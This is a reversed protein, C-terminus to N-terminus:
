GQLVRRAVGTMGEAGFPNVIRVGALRTGDGMDETLMVKCGAQAMTAVLLADWYSARRQVVLDLAVRISMPSPPVCEFVQLWDRVHRAAQDAQMGHKRTVVAFFESLAQLAIVCDLAAALRIIEVAVAHRIGAGVDVGYVLINTDLTFREATM